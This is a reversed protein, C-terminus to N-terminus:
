RPRALGISVSMPFDGNSERRRWWRKGKFHLMNALTALLRWCIPGQPPGEGLRPGGRLVSADRHCPATLPPARSRPPAPCAPAEGGRPLLTEWKVIGPRRPPPRSAGSKGLSRHSLRKRVSRGSPFWLHAPSHSPNIPFLSDPPQKTSANVPRPLLHRQVRPRARTHAQQQQQRCGHNRGSATRLSSRRRRPGAPCGPAVDWARGLPPAIPGM